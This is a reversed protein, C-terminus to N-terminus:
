SPGRGSMELETLPANELYLKLFLIFLYLFSHFNIFRQDFVSQVLCILHNADIKM